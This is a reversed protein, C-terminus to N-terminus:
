SPLSLVPGEDVGVAAEIAARRAAWTPDTQRAVWTPDVVVSALSAVLTADLEDRTPAPDPRLLWAALALLPLGLVALAAVPRPLRRM